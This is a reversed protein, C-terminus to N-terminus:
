LDKLMLHALFQADIANAFRDVKKHIKKRESPIRAKSLISIMEEVTKWELEDLVEKEGFLDSPFELSNSQMLPIMGYSLAEYFRKTLQGVGLLNIAFHHRKMARIYQTNSVNSKLVNLDKSGLLILDQIVSKRNVLIGGDKDEHIFVSGAWFARNSRFPTLVRSRNLFSHIPDNVGFIVFPFPAVNSAYERDM